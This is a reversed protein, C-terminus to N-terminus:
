ILNNKIKVDAYVEPNAKGLPSNRAWEQIQEVVGKGGDRKMNEPVGTRLTIVNYIDITELNVFAEYQDLEDSDLRQVNENAWTGLLLDVELWGRQKSRYVLRKKRVDLEMEEKAKETPADRSGFSALPIEDLKPMRIHREFIAAYKPQAIAALKEEEKSLNYTMEGSDGRYWRAASTTPFYYSQRQVLSRRLIGVSRGLASAATKM